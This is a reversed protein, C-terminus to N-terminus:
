GHWRQWSFCLVSDLCLESYVVQAGGPGILVAYRATPLGSAAPGVEEFWRLAFPDLNKLQSQRPPQIPYISMSEQLGYRYGPSVDRHRVFRTVGKLDDWAPLGEFSVSLWETNMGTAGVVRGNRLRLVEGAGSYWVEVTGAPERDQYGLAFYAERDDIQVRLYQFNPNLRLAGASAKSGFPAVLQAVDQVAKLAPSSSCGALLVVLFLLSPIRIFM